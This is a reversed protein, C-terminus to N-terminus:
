GCGALDVGIASSPVSKHSSFESSCLALWIGSAASFSPWRALVRIMAKFVLTLALLM